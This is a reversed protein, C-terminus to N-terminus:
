RVIRCVEVTLGDAQVALSSCLFSITFTIAVVKNRDGNYTKTLGINENERKLPM